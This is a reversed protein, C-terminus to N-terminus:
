CFCQEAYDPSCFRRHPTISAALITSRALSVMFKEHWCHPAISSRESANQVFHPARCLTTGCALGGRRNQMLHPAGRSPAFNQVFHTAGTSRGDSVNVVDGTGSAVLVLPVSTDGTVLALLLAAGAASGERVGTTCDDSKGFTTITAMPTAADKISAITAPPM